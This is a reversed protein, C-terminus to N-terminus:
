RVHASTLKEWKSEKIIVWHSTLLNIGWIIFRSLRLSSFGVSSMDPWRSEWERSEASLYKIRLNFNLPYINCRPGRFGSSLCVECVSIPFSWQHANSRTQGQPWLHSLWKDNHSNMCFIQGNLFPVDQMSMKEGQNLFFLTNTRKPLSVLTRSYVFMNPHKKLYLPM